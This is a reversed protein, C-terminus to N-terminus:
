CSFFWAESFLIEPVELVWAEDGFSFGFACLESSEEVAEGVAFAARVYEVPDRGKAVGEV